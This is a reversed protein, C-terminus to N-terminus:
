IVEANKLMEALPTRKDRKLDIAKRDKIIITVHVFAVLVPYNTNSGLGKFIM